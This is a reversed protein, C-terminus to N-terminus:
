GKVVSLMKYALLERSYKKIECVDPDYLTYIGGGSLTERLASRINEIQDEGEQFVLGTRTKRLVKAIEYDDNSGICIIPKGSSIYEFLKGTLVGKAEIRGSELLLLLGAESQVSLSVDRNVHGMIRVIKKYSDVRALKKALDVRSGYFDVTVDGEAIEGEDVMMRLADLLPAPDQYGEYITGTYVIRFPASIGISRKKLRSELASAEIDFGNSICDVKRDFLASLKHALDESVTTVYDAHVGVTSLEKLTACKRSNDDSFAVHNLSWLDRYDAVWTAAPNNKKIECGVVHASEPGFTSVILDIDDGLAKSAEIAPVVWGNRPDLSVKTASSLVGKIKKAFSKLYPNSLLFGGWGGSFSYEVEFVQADPIASLNLDLPADFAKKKATIVFVEHGKKSWYKAWSYPRHSGIANRPPWNYTVIVIKM